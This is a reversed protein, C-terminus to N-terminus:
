ASSPMRSKQRDRPSPSTYLLCFRDWHQCQFVDNIGDPVSIPGARFHQTVSNSNSRIASKIDGNPSIGGMWIGGGVISSPQNTTFGQNNSFYSGNRDKDIWLSGDTSLRARTQNASLDIQASPIPCDQAQLSGYFVFLFIAITFTLRM